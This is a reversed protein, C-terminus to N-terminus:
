TTAALQDLAFTVVDDRTMTRGIRRSEVFGPSGEVSAIARQRLAEDDPMHVSEADLFGAVTAADDLSSQKAQHVVFATLARVVPGWARERLGVSITEGIQDATEPHNGTAMAIAKLGLAATLAKREGVQEALEIAEDLLEIASEVDVDDDTFFRSQAFRAVFLYMPGGIQESIAVFQELAAPASPQGVNVDWLARAASWRVFPRADGDVTDQVDPMVATAEDPRGGLMLGYMLGIRCSGLATPDEALELGRRALDLGDELRGEGLAWAAANGLVRATM